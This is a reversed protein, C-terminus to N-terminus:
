VAPCKMTVRLSVTLDAGAATGGVTDIDVELYNNAVVSTTTLAGSNLATKAPGTITPKTVNYITAGNYNIDVVVTAPSGAPATRVELYEGTITMAYPARFIFAGNTAALAQILTGPFHWIIQGKINITDTIIASGNVKGATTITALKTDPIRCSADLNAETLANVISDLYNFNANVLSALIVQGAAFTNPITM